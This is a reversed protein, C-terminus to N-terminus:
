SADYAACVATVGTVQAGGALVGIGCAGGIGTARPPCNVNEVERPPVDKYTPSVQVTVIVPAEGFEATVTLPEIGEPDNWPELMPEVSAAPLKEFDPVNSAPVIPVHDSVHDTPPTGDPETDNVTDAMGVVGPPATIILELPDCAAGPDVAVGPAGTDRPNLREEIGHHPQAM